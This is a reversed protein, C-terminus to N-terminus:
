AAATKISRGIRAAVEELRSDAPGLTLEFHSPQPPDFTGGWTVAPSLVTIIAQIADLQLISLTDLTGNPFSRPSIDVATGSAHNTLPEPDHQNAILFGALADDHIPAVTRNFEEIVWGILAAPAGSRLTTTASLGFFPTELIMGSPDVRSQVLWGNASTWGPFLDTVRNQADQIQEQSDSPVDSPAPAPTPDAQSAAVVGFTGALATGASAMLLHRRTIHPGSPTHASRAYKTM